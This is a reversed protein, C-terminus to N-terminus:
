SSNMDLLPHKFSSLHQLSSIEVSYIGTVGLTTFKDTTFTSPPQVPM